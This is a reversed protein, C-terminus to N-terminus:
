PILRPPRYKHKNMLILRYEPRRHPEIYHSKSISTKALRFTFPYTALAHRQEQPAVWHVTLQDLNGRHESPLFFMRSPTAGFISCHLGWSQQISILRETVLVTRPCYAGPYSRSFIQSVRQTFSKLGLHIQQLATWALGQLRLHLLRSREEHIM